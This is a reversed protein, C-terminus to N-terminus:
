SQTTAISRAPLEITCHLGSPAFVRDARGGLEYALLDTIVSSGYGQRAPMKVEPGGSEVWQVKLMVSPSQEPTLTWRVSVQGGPQSLAGYKAANTTLEHIVMAVGHTAEPSLYVAPGALKTNTGTAYPELEGRVLDILSVGRWRSRSLLAQTDAMSKVRDLLSSAFDENPKANERGRQIVATVVALMNKVRHELEGM